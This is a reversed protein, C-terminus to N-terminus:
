LWKMWETPKPTELGRTLFQNSKTPDSFSTYIKIKREKTLSLMHNDIMKMEDVNLNEDMMIINQLM